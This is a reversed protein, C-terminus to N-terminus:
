NIQPRPNRANKGTSLSGVFLPVNEYKKASIHAASIAANRIDAALRKAWFDAM